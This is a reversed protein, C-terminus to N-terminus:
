VTANNASSIPEAGQYMTRIQFLIYLSILGGVLASVVLGTVLNSVIAILRAYFILKWGSIKRAFLGPLAAIDLALEVLVLVTMYTFGAAYGVGAFPMLLTGIGLAALLVPLGLALLVVAIWPGYKVIEKAGDPLQFPAKKVLYFDLFGILDKPPQEDAM